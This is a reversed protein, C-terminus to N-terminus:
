CFTKWKPNLQDDIQMIVDGQKLGAQDAPSDKQVYGITAPEDSNALRPYRVMFLGTLLAVALVINM